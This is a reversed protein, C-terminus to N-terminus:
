MSRLSGSRFGKVILWVPLILEFLGVPASVITGASTTFLDILGFMYM